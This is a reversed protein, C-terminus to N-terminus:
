RKEESMEAHHQQYDQAAKNVAQVSTNALLDRNKMTWRNSFQISEAAGQFQPAVYRAWLEYSRRTAAPTAWEHALILMGGFGGTLEGLERLHKVAEDPTGVIASGGAIMGDLSMEMSKGDPTQFLVGLTDGFYKQCWTDAGARVDDLAEKHSDALHVPLVVRWNRRELRNGNEAAIEEAMKWRAPLERMGGPSVATMSLMGCGLQGAAVAGSPSFTNAVFLPMHPKQFPKIQLHADRLKFYSGDVTIGGEETFLRLITRIGEVMRDRQRTSEIGLMYADGPLAGPGCGLIVRGHTLQDLMAMRNAVHFPHHYPISIVGTGLMIRKTRTAAVAIFVEPSPIIEWGGSHHEGIFAEDYGLDDLLDILELDRELALAPSQGPQHFPAMFIGFKM